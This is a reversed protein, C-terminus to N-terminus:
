TAIGARSAPAPLTSGCATAPRSYMGQNVVYKNTYEYPRGPENPEARPGNRYRARVIGDALNQAFGDPHVDVLRAVFDTDPADTIAWLKVILPGTVETDRELPPTSYSLLDPRAEIPRQDKAGPGFLEHMLLNGGSTPTPDAPDYTYQDPRSTARRRPRLYVM